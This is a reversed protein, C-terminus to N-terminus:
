LLLQGVFDGPQGSNNKVGACHAIVKLQASLHRNQGVSSAADPNVARPFHFSLERLDSFM